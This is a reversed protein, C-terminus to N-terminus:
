QRQMTFVVCVMSDDLHMLENHQITTKSDMAKVAKHLAKHRRNHLFSCIGEYPLGLFGSVLATIIGFKQKTPLQPLILDIENKWIHHATDKYSKIQQKYYDVYPKIKRCDVLLDLIYKKEEATCGNKEQLYACTRDYNLKSFILDEISPLIFKTVVYFRDFSHALMGEYRYNNRYGFKSINKKLEMKIDISTYRHIYCFSICIFLSYGKM